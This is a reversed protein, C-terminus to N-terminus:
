TKKKMKMLVGINHEATQYGIGYGEKRAQAHAQLCLKCYCPHRVVRADRQPTGLAKEVSWGRGLRDRIVNDRWGLEKAWLAITKTIGKYTLHYNTRMNNSQELRTAWHCNEKSYNGDNNIRDITTDKRGYEETHQIYSDYMDEKFSSFSEWEVRIGRGGYNHYGKNKPNNCREKMNTFLKRLRGVSDTETLKM